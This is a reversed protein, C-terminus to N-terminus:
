RCAAPACSHRPPKETKRALLRMNAREIAVMADEVTPLQNNISPIFILV